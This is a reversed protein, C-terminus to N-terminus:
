IKLRKESLASKYYVVQLGFVLVFFIIVPVINNLGLCIIMLGFLSSSDVIIVLLASLGFLTTLKNIVKPNLTERTWRFAEKEIKFETFHKEYYDKVQNMSLASEVWASRLRILKLLYLIGFIFIMFFLIAVGSKRQDPSSLLSDAKDTTLLMGIANVMIGILILFFNIMKHRDEMAQAATERAYNFEAILIEHPFDKVTAANKKQRTTTDSIM